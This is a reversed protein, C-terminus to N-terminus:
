CPLSVEPEMCISPHRLRSLSQYTKLSLNKGEEEEEELSGHIGGEAHNVLIEEIRKV